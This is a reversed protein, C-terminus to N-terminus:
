VNKNANGKSRFDNGWEGMAQMVLLSKQGWDTLSYEVRPPVEAFVERHIIGNKELDRLEQTLMTKTILPMARQMEGFRTINESILYLIIPKWRGGIISITFTVPCTEPSCIISSTKKIKEKMKIVNRFKKKIKKFKIAQYDINTHIKISHKKIQM